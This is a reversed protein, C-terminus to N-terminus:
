TLKRPDPGYKNPGKTGPLFYVNSTVWFLSGVFMVLFIVTLVPIGFVLTEVFNSLIILAPTALIYLGFPLLYWYGSLNRDHMRKFSLILAIWAAAIWIPIGFLFFRVTADISVEPGVEINPSVFVVLVFSLLGCFAFYPLMFGLWYSKRSVRGKPNFYFNRWDV